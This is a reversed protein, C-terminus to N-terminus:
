GKHSRSCTVPDWPVKETFHKNRQTTFLLLSTFPDAARSLVCYTDPSRPKRGPRGWGRLKGPSWFAAKTDQTGRGVGGGGKGELVSCGRAKGGIEESIGEWNWQKIERKIGLMEINFHRLAISVWPSGALDQWRRWTSGTGLWWGKENPKQVPKGILKGAEVKGEWLNSEVCSDSHDEWLILSGRM